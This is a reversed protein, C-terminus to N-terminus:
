RISSSRLQEALQRYRLVGDNQRLHRLIMVARHARKAPDKVANIIYLLTRQRGLTLAKFFARAAPDQRLAEALESPMAHGYESKDPTLSVRVEDGIELGLSRQLTRNVTIVWQGRRYAVIACQFTASDNLTCVVRKSGTAALTTVVKTPVAVHASWLRNTSSHLPSVFTLNDPRPKTGRRSAPMRVNM